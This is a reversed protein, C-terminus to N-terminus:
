VRHASYSNQKKQLGKDFIHASAMTITGEPCTVYNTQLNNTSCTSHAPTKPQTCVPWQLWVATIQPSGTKSTGNRSVGIKPRTYIASIPRMNYIDSTVTASQVTLQKIYGFPLSNPPGGRLFRWRRLSGMSTPAATPRAAPAIARLVLNRSAFSNSCCHSYYPHVRLLCSPRESTEPFVQPEYSIRASIVRRM